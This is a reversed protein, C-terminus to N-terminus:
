APSEPLTVRLDFIGGAEAAVRVPTSAASRAVFHGGNEAAVAPHARHRDGARARSHGAPAHRDAAPHQREFLEVAELHARSYAM